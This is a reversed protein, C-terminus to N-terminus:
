REVGVRPGSHAVMVPVVRLDRACLNSCTVQAHDKTADAVNVLGNIKVHLPGRQVLEKPM